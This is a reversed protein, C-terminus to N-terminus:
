LERLNFRRRAEEFLARLHENVVVSDNCDYDIIIDRSWNCGDADPEVLEYQVTARAAECGPHKHLAQNLWASLEDRTKFQRM